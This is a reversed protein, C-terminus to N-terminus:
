KVLDIWDYDLLAGNVVNAFPVIESNRVSEAWSKPAHFCDVKAFLDRRAAFAHASSICTRGCAIVEVPKKAREKLSAALAITEEARVGVMSKGLLYLMVAPGEDPNRCGYFKRKLGGTEGTCALDAVMIAKGEALTKPIRARHIMRTARDDTVLVAGKVEGKPMYTVAPVKIGDGFSYVERIITSGNSLKRSPCAEAVAVGLKELPRIGARRVAAEATAPRRARGNQCPASGSRTAEAAALDDKLYEYISKFGPLEKVKGKPTVNFAKGSLGCDVKKLDFDKDIRRMEEVDIEPTSADGALWRRMWQLSSTRMGETWAHPGPVDTMGYRGEGLGCNKAVDRAVAYTERSGAIPFFDDFSCHMRVANGGLLVYGAHNFGFMLQGFVNQEADQPGCKEAVARLSCVYEAPCGAVVRLDLAELLSTMTGGGSQGMCGVGDKVVDDRSLLYDIARMGDWVRQQATSQGLLAALAGYWNHPRCGIGGPVQEREGQAFPDYVLMVFGALAGMVGGRQYFDTGKAETTHGCPVLIGRYPPKFKAADPVFALATVYVGPRSEFLVKEIGYGDRPIREAVKANLPARGFNLGGIAAMLRERMRARYADYEARSKLARWVDDAAKDAASLEKLIADHASFETGSPLIRKGLADEIELQVDVSPIAAPPVYGELKMFSPDLRVNERGKATCNRFVVDVARTEQKGVGPPLTYYQTWPVMRIIERCWGGVNEVLIHEYLQKTDPRSKLNLLAGCGRVESNRLILNRCLFADSGCTFAHHCVPGFVCDEVLVNCSEGNEPRKECEYRWGGKMVVADDNVDMYAGWVHADRVADLDVADSSPSAPPTKPGPATIRVNDVKVRECKYFHTTWFHPDKITVGSVRVNRSNSVFVNRPRPMTWDKFGKERKRRPWFEAWTNRGNGDITGEGYLTFGDCRDANVLAVSYVFNMSAFRTMRQPADAGNPSGRLVAGKELKLHVGPKFFLAVANWVGPGLVLVGGGDSAIADIARQLKETQMEGIDPRAGFDEARRLRGLKTEDVPSRDAFWPDMRSGDPWAGVSDEFAFQPRADGKAAAAGIQPRPDLTAGIAACAGIMAVVIFISKVKGDFMNMLTRRTM